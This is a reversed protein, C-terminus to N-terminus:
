AEELEELWKVCDRLQEITMDKSSKVDYNDRIEDFDVEKEMALKNTKVMLDIAEKQEEETMPKKGTLLEICKLLTEDKSNNLIWDIYSPDDKIVDTLKHGNHKKGFTIVYEKALEPTLEIKEVIVEESKDKDPDDGTEIKYAKLLAYKDSYTMAKGTAKDQSDIGYGYTTIDIFEEPKDINVFRYVTELKIVFSVTTGYKTTFEERTEERIKREFPYSYIGLEAEVPKVANNVDKDSVAKYSNKGEGVTLSKIVTEIKSTALSMKQYINLKSIDIKEEKM